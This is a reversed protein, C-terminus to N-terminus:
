DEFWRTGSSFPPYPSCRDLVANSAETWTRSSDADFYYFPNWHPRGSLDGGPTSLMGTDFTLRSPVYTVHMGNAALCPILSEKYYDYTYDLQEISAPWDNIGPMGSEAAYCDYWDRKAQDSLDATLMVYRIQVVAGFDSVTLVFDGYGRGSMCLVFDSVGDREEDHNVVPHPRESDPLGTLEWLADLRYAMLQEVDHDTAPPPVEHLPRIALVVGGLSLGGIACAIVVITLRTPLSV